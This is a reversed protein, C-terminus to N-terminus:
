VVILVIAAAAIAAEATAMLTYSATWSVLESTTEM